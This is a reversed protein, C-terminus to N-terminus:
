LLGLLFSFLFIRLNKLDYLISIAKTIKQINRAKKQKSKDKSARYKKQLAHLKNRNLIKEKLWDSVETLNKGFGEGYRNGESDTVVETYGFDIGIIEQSM